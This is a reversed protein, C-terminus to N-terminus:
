QKGQTDLSVSLASVPPVGTNRAKEVAGLPDASWKLKNDWATPRNFRSHSLKFHELCRLIFFTSALPISGRDSCGNIFVDGHETPRKTEAPPQPM